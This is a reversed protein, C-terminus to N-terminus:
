TNTKKQKLNCQILEKKLEIIKIERAVLLKNFRKLEETKALLKKEDKKRQTIDEVVAVRFTKSGLIFTRISLLTDYISGDKRKFRVEHSDIKGERKLLKLIIERDKSDSYLFSVNGIKKIDAATYRGEKLIENNFDVINGFIDVIGIGIPALQFVKKYLSSEHICDANGGTM